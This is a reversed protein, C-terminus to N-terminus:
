ELLYDKKEYKRAVLQKQQFVDYLRYEVSIKENSTSVKGAVLHQAKIVKWDEFRPQQFLSQNSQIFAKQDLPIFLGSRELNDSIVNSINKGTKEFDSNNSFLNTIAIPTPKVSGQTLTVELSIAKLPILIIFFVLFFKQMLIGEYYQLRFYNYSKEM